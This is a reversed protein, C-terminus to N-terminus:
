EELMVFGKRVAMVAAQTRDVVGMKKFLRSVHMRVTSASLELETMIEKNSHGEVILRLMDYERPSLDKQEKHADLKAKIAPPFYTKGAHVSRIADVMCEVADNKTLYGCVGEKWAKWVDGEREYNSLFIIRADPFEDLIHHTAALGDGNPMRYDMTVIDPKLERFLEVGKAGSGAEGVAEMDPEDSITDCVGIRLLPNDDVVLVRIKQNM